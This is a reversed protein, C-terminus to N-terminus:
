KFPSGIFRVIRKKLQDFDVPKTMFDSAGSQKGELEDAEGHLGTVMIVPLKKWAPNARIARCVAFGNMEPMMVDLIVLDPNEREVAALGAKGSAASEVDYGAANLHTKFILIVTEEDDIILIKKRKEDM